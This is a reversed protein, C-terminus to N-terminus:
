EMKFIILIKQPQMIPIKYIKLYCCKKVTKSKVTFNPTQSGHFNIQPQQGGFKSWQSHYFLIIEEKRRRKEKEERVKQREWESEIQLSDPEFNVCLDAARWMKLALAPWDLLSNEIYFFLIPAASQTKRGHASSCVYFHLNVASVARSLTFQGNNHAGRARSDPCLFCASTYTDNWSVRVRM